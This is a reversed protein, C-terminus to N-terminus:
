RGETKLKLKKPIIFTFKSGTGSDPCPSEVWIKGGHAEIIRKTISLGLGTGKTETNSGRYFDEFMRPLDDEPIGIGTDIVEVQIDDDIEKVVLNVTGENTYTIANNLLNTLVQQLRPSSGYIKPMQEPMETKLKIGKKKALTRQDQVCNRIVQRFSCEKMEQVIQGTEIRPIDLLDSILNLLETIRRASRELMNKQKENLEGSFGGIMVWLYGQIATLPAKLDHAAIGLFRLFREKEEELEAIAKSSQELERTKEKLLSERLQVVQRQRKRLEGSISSAMFTSAWLITALAVLVVLIRSAEQYRDPSVFGELNHHPIIEAYELGVLASVMIIALTALLHATKYPLVISAGIIHLVFLFIFPNEIGGSFHLIATLAILDLFVHIYGHTRAKSIILSAELKRLNILERMFILNYVAIFACIIYVPLIPFEIDFVESAVLTALIICIIALWRMKVFLRLRMLAAAQEPFHEAEEQERLLEEEM